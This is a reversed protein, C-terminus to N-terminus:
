FHQMQRLVDHAGIAFTNSIRNIYGKKCVHMNQCLLLAIMLRYKYNIASVILKIQEYPATNIVQHRYQSYKETKDVIRQRDL